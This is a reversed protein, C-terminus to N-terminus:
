LFSPRTDQMEKKFSNRRRIVKAKREDENKRGCYRRLAAM